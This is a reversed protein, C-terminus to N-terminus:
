LRFIIIFFCSHANKEVKKFVLICTFKVKQVPSKKHRYRYDTTMDNVPLGAKQNREGKDKKTEAGTQFSNEEVEDGECNFRPLNLQAIEWEPECNFIDEEGDSVTITAVGFNKSNYM